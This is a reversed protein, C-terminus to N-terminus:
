MILLAILLIVAAASVFGHLACLIRRGRKLAALAAMGFVLCGCLAACLLPIEQRTLLLMALVYVYLGTGLLSILVPIVM